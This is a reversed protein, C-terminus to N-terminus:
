LQNYYSNLSLNKDYFKKSILNANNSILKKIKDSKFLKLAECVQTFSTQNVYIAASKATEFNPDINSLIMPKRLSLAELVSFSMGETSSIQIFCDSNILAKLVENRKKQGYIYINNLNYESIYKRFNNEEPGTGYIHLNFEPFEKFAKILFGINKFKVLRSIVIFNLKNKYIIKSKNKRFSFVKKNISAFNNIVKIDRDEIKKLFYIKLYNSPTIIIDFSKLIKNRLFFLINLFLSINDRKYINTNSSLYKDWISDSVFRYVIKNNLGIQSLYTEFLLGCCLISDINRSFKRITFIVKLTRILKNQNRRLKIINKESYKINQEDQLTIVKYKDKKIKLFKIIEAVFTAPGGIDPPYIGTIILIKKKM